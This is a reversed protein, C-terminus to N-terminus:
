REDIGAAVLREPWVKKLHVYEIEELLAKIRAPLDDM